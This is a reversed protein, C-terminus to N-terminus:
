SSGCMQWDCKCEEDPSQDEEEEEVEEEVVDEVDPLPTDSVDAMIENDLVLEKGGRKKGKGFKVPKEVDEMADTAANTDEAEAAADELAEDDLDSLDLDDAAANSALDDLGEDKVMLGRKPAPQGLLGDTLSGRVPSPRKRKGLKIGEMLVPPSSDTIGEPSSPLAATNTPFSASLGLLAETAAQEDNVSVAAAMKAEKNPSKDLRETEAESDVEPQLQRSIQTNYLVPTDEESAEDVDLDSLSSSANDAMDIGDTLNSTDGPPSSPDEKTASSAMTETPDPLDTSSSTIQLKSSALTSSGQSQAANSLTSAVVTGTLLLTPLHRLKSNLSCHQCLLAQV